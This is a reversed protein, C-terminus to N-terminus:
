VSVDGSVVTFCLWCVCAHSVPCLIMATLTVDHRWFECALCYSTVSRPFCCWSISNVTLSSNLNINKCGSIFSKFWDRPGRAFTNRAAQSKYKEIM